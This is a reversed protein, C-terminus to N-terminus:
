PICRMSLDEKDRYKEHCAACADAVLMDIREHSPEIEGTVTFARMKRIIEGARLAQTIAGDLMGLAPVDATENRARLIQRGAEAYNTAASLPQNLEHALTSAMAGMASLRSVRLLKEHAGILDAQAAHFATVDISVGLLRGRGGNGADHRGIM